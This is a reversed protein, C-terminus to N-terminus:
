LLKSFVYKYEILINPSFTLLLEFFWNINLTNLSPETSLFSIISYFLILMYKFLSAIAERKKNTIEPFYIVGVKQLNFISETSNCLAM